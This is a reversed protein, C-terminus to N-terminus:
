CLLITKLPKESMTPSTEDADSEIATTRRLACFSAMGGKRVYIFIMRPSFHGTNCWFLNSYMEQM